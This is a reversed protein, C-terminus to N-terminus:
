LWSLNLRQLHTWLADAAPAPILHLNSAPGNPVASLYMAGKATFGALLTFSVSTPHMDAGCALVFAPVLTSM